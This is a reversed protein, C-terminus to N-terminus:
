RFICSKRNLFKILSLMENARTEMVGSRILQPFFLLGGTVVVFGVTLLRSVMPSMRWRRALSTRKVAVEAATCVGHLVFFSTVEGTPIEFTLSFFFVEHAVGSVIFTMLVALFRAHDSSMRGNCLRRVPIYIAPKLLAPVMLNWRNSWFDQLSTALYPENFNPELNCGLAVSVLLRVLTLIIEHELYLQLSYHFFLFVPPVKHKYGCWYLLMGYIAVKTVFNSKSFPNQIKPNRQLKIPFCTFCIFHSLCSPIPFLPGQDFSFLILKLNAIGGLFLSIIFSMHLSSFFFPFVLFIAYVPLVSILRFIGSKIRTSLYYCYSVLVMALVWIIIFLKLEEEM